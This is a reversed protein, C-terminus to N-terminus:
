KFFSDIPNEFSHIFSSCLTVCISSCCFRFPNKNSSSSAINKAESNLQLNFSVSSLTCSVNWGIKTSSLITVGLSFFSPLSELCPNVSCSYESIISPLRSLFGKMLFVKCSNLRPELFCIPWLNCSSPQFGLFNVGVPWAITSSVVSLFIVWM